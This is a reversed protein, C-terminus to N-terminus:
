RGEAAGQLEAIWKERQEPKIFRLHEPYQLLARALETRRATSAAGEFQIVLYDLRAVPRVCYFVLSCFLAIWGAQIVRSMRDAPDRGRQLFCFSLAFGSILGGIHGANSVYPIMMGLLLNAIILTVLQRPGAYNLFDLMHRGLRMNMALMCGLMGFLAGSGGVLPSEPSWLCGGIGGGVGTLAYLLAYRMGGISAELAPGIVLLSYSNVFLHLWYGHLFAYTLLRWVEGQGIAPAFACGYSFVPHEGPGQHTLTVFGIAVYAVLVATTVPARQAMEGFSTTM